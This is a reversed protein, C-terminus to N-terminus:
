STTSGHGGGDRGSSDDGGSDDSGDGAGTAGRRLRRRRVVLQRGALVVLVVLVLVPRASTGSGGGSGDARPGEVSFQPAGGACVTRVEVKQSGNRFEVEGPDSSDDVWWGPAPAGALEPIGNVCAAFM